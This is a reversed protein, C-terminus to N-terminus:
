RRVGPKILTERTRVRCSIELMTKDMWIAKNLSNRFRVKIPFMNFIYSDEYILVYKDYIEKHRRRSADIHHDNRATFFSFPLKEM